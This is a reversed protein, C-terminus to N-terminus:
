TGGEGPMDAAGQHEHEHTQGCRPCPSGARHTWLISADRAKKEREEEQTIMDELLGAAASTNGMKIAYRLLNLADLLSMDRKSVHRGEAPAM